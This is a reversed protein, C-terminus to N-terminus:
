RLTVECRVFSVLRPAPGFAPKPQLIVGTVKQNADALTSDAELVLVYSTTKNFDLNIHLKNKKTEPGVYADFEKKATGWATSVVLGKETSTATSKLTAGNAAVCNLLALRPANEEAFAVNALSAIAILATIYTKM